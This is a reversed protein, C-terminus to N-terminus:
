RTDHLNKKEVAPMGNWAAHLRRVEDLVTMFDDIRRQRVVVEIGGDTEGLGFEVAMTGIHNDSGAAAACDGHCDSRVM